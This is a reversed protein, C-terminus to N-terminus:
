NVILWQKLLLRIDLNEDDSHSLYIDHPWLIGGGSYSTMEVAWGSQQVTNLLGQDNWHMEEVSLSRAPLGRVWDRIANVPLSVGLISSFVNDINRVSEKRGDPYRIDAYQQNGQILYSGSGLPLILRIKYDEGSQKWILDMSGGTTQTQVGLRGRVEWIKIQQRQEQQEQWGVPQLSTKEKVMTCSALTLCILVFTLRSLAQVSM